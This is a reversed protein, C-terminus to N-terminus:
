RKPTPIAPDSRTDSAMDGTRSSLPSAFCSGSSGQALARLETTRAEFEARTPQRNHGDVIPGPEFRHGVVCPQAGGPRTGQGDDAVASGPQAVVLMASLGCSLTLATIIRRSLAVMTQDRRFSVPLRSWVTGTRSGPEAPRRRKSRRALSIAPLATKNRLDYVVHTHTGDTAGALQACVGADHSEHPIFLLNARDAKQWRGFKVRSRRGAPM